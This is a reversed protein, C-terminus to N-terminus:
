CEVDLANMICIRGGGRRKKILPLSGHPHLLVFVLCYVGGYNLGIMCIIIYFCVCVEYRTVGAPIKRGNV